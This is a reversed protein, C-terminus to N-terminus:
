LKRRALQEESIRQFLAIVEMESLEGIRAHVVDPSPSHLGMARLKHAANEIDMNEVSAFAIVRIIERDNYEANPGRPFRIARVLEDVLNNLARVRPYRYPEVTM